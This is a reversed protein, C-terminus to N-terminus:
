RQSLEAFESTWAKVLLAAAKTLQEEDYGAFGAIVTYTERISDVYYASLGYVKVGYRKALKIMDIESLCVKSTLLLHLGAEQGSISINNSLPNLGLLLADRRGKYINRIRNLHREYYGGQIFRWLTCQEFESVTCSYFMLNRHYQELLKPPLILYAIRLSPALTRTFTNLYIVKDNCDLSHLPPVPKLAFRFESDYDDEILYRNQKEAAWLLLQRRRSISMVTGLPFHHSPTILVVSAESKKLEEICLGQDDMSIAEYPVRRSSFIKAPKHYNPNEIAFTCLPMLETILGLLYETGAGFVIQEATVRMDRFQGLYNVIEQRLVMDGQPHVPELLAAKEHHMSERMLKTWVSFPFDQMLAKNTKLDYIFKEKNKEPEFIKKKKGVMNCKNKFNEIPRVYYAKKEIADIYGEVALQAYANEVTRISIRLHNAMKRKSPLKEGAKLSGDDIRQKIQGYLQGYLPQRSNEDFSMTIM